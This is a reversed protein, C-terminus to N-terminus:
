ERADLSEPRRLHVPLSRILERTARADPERILRAAWAAAFIFAASGFFTARLGIDVGVARLWEPLYGGLTPMPSVVLVVIISYVAFQTSRGASPTVKYILTSLAVSIGAAAIGALLNFPPIVAYVTAASKMWVWVLPSPIIAATCAILVPRCGYRDVLRGWFPSAALMSLTAVANILGVGLFPMKLDRLMYTAYFPAAISQMSWLLAYGMVLMLPVNAFTQRILRLFGNGSGDRELAVDPQPVFLLASAVGFIMGFGFLGGFAGIGMRKVHDLFAGEVVAFVTGVIGAYMTLRGFFTGRVKAPILDGVWSGRANGSIQAFLSVLAIAAILAFIRVGPAARAATYPILIVLAWCSVNALAALLTIRRRSVGREVLASAFLQAVVCLMPITSMMGIQINNAGLRLAYGILFMGGTSAGYIATLMAQSYSLRIAREIAPPPEEATLRDFM